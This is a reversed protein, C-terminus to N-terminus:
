NETPNKEIYDIVLVNITVKKKKLKLGVQQPLATYLNPVSMPELAAPVNSGVGATISGGNETPEPAWEFSLDYKGDLGTRDTVPKGIQLSLVGAMGEMTTQSWQGRARGVGYFVGSTGPPLVPFGDKIKWNQSVATEKPPETESRKFKPGNKAIVLEYGPLAKKQWHFKLGFREILLNQKMQLFQEKTAGEAVKARVVFRDSGISSQVQLQYSRLDFAAKVLHLITANECVWLAPNHTGPGGSCGSSTIRQQLTPSPKVSAAEFTLKQHSDGSQGDSTLLYPITATVAVSFLISFSKIKMVAM